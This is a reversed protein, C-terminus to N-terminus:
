KWLPMQYLVGDVLVPLWAQITSTSLGTPGVNTVLITNTGNATAYDSFNNTIYVYGKTGSGTQVGPSLTVLGGANNLGAADAAFMGVSAGIGSSVTAGAVLDVGGGGLGGDGGFIRVVGGVSAASSGGGGADIRIDGGHGAGFGTGGRLALNAAAQSSLVGDASKVVTSAFTFSTNPAGLTMAGLAADDWLLKNSQSLVGSSNAFVIENAVLGGIAHTTNWATAGTSSFTGDAPTSHTISVTM